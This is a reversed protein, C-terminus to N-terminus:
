DGRRDRGSRREREREEGSGRRRPASESPSRRRGGGRGRSRSDGRGRSRSRGRGRAPPDSRSRSRSEDHGRRGRGGSRARDRGKEGGRDKEGGAQEAQGSGSSATAVLEKLAKQQKPSFLHLNALVMAKLQKTSAFQRDSIAGYIASAKLKGTAAQMLAMQFWDQRITPEMSLVHAPDTSILEEAPAAEEKKEKHVRRSSVYGPLVRDDRANPNFRANRKNNNVFAM